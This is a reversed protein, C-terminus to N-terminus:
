PFLGLTNWAAASLGLQYVIESVNSWLKLTGIREADLPVVITDGPQMRVEETFWTDVASVVAGNARIVYVNDDDAKRTMGGSLGIYDEFDLGKQRLHSTPHHVEGIVTVEQMQAPIVLRDGGRLVIAGSKEEKILRLEDQKVIELDIVLRGTAKTAKLKGLLQQASGATEVKTPDGSRELSVAALEAELNMAMADLREQERKRLEERMFVAGSPYAYQTMGGARRILSALTEGRQIPYRGPFQVEGVIEVLEQEAWLPIEKVHLLDYPQLELNSREDGELAAQLDIDIHEIRRPKGAEVHYRTLEARLTFASEKLSGGALVLDAIRMGEVLPYSGASRVEGNVRVMNTPATETSQMRLEEIIPAVQLHRQESMDFVLIEDRPQLVINQVSDRNKFIKRLNSSLVTLEYDPLSYRKILFYDLDAGKKIDNVSPIIDSVKLGPRWQFWGPRQVHGKLFVVDQKMESVQFISLKDGSQIVFDPGNSFDVDFIRVSSDADVREIKITQKFAESSFGGAMIIVDSLTAKDKLEYIAPRNIEGIISVVQQKPPVFIVDGSQLRVDKKLEGSQLFSYLDLEAILKGARKISVNRLSGTHKVGGAKTLAQTVNTLASFIHAGPQKVEGLVFVSISRLEGLTINANVGIFQLEVKRQLNKRVEGFPLGSVPLSGIGPFAVTGERTVELVFEQNDKGFLQVHITDGPGVLYGSPVPVDLPTSQFEFEEKKAEFVEYGFPELADVGAPKLPLRQVTVFFGQFLPELTLRAAAQEENLGALYFDGVNALHLTGEADLKFLMQRRPPEYRIEDPQIEKQAIEDEHFTVILSDGGKFRMDEVQAEEEDESTEAGEAGQPLGEETGMLRQNLTSPKLSAVGPSGGLSKLLAQKQNPSLSNWMRMQDSSVVAANSVAFGLFLGIGILLHRIKVRM